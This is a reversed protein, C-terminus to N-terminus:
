AFGRSEQQKYDCERCLLRTNEKTYGSMAMIRDLVVNKEPLENSCLACRNNQEGRKFAKLQRRHMPKGREDYILEKALKRRLAWLLSEDGDSHTLLKERVEQLLPRFLKNLEDDTLQRNPM